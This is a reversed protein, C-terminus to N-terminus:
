CSELAKVERNDDELGSKSDAAGQVGFGSPVRAFRYRANYFRKELLHWSVLSMLGTLMLGFVAIFLWALLPHVQPFAWATVQAALVLALLHFIYAGYTIRGFRVLPSLAFFRAAPPWYLVSLLFLGCFVAILSFHYVISVHNNQIPPVFLVLYVYFLLSAGFLLGGWHRVWTQIRHAHSTMLLSVAIGVLIADLHSLTNYYYARHSWANVQIAWRIFVGCPFATLVILWLTSRNKVRALVAGWVIYFQEEMAVSWPIMTYVPINFAAPAIFCFNALFLLYPLLCARAMAQWTPSGFSFDIFGFAPLILFSLLIFAFYLPWIRLVRRTFFAKFSVAEFREREKFLLTTILFASLVFFIEVGIWGWQMSYNIFTVGFQLGPLNFVPFAPLHSLYVLLFALTRLGDLQPWYLTKASPKDAM